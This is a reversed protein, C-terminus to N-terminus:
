RRPLSGAFGATNGLTVANRSGDAGPSPNSVFTTGPSAAAATTTTTVTSVAVRDAEFQPKLLYNNDKGASWRGTRADLNWASLSNFQAV